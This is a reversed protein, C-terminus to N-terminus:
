SHTPILKKQYPTKFKNDNPNPIEIYDSKQIEVTNKIQKSMHIKPLGYFNSTISIYYKEKKTLSKNHIKNFKTIKSIMNNDINRDILKHNTEDKM